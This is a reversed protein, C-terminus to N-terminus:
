WGSSACDTIANGDVGDAGSSVPAYRTCIDDNRLVPVTPEAIGRMVATTRISVAV